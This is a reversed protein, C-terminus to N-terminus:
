LVGSQRYLFRAKLHWYYLISSEKTWCVNDNKVFQRSNQVHFGLIIYEFVKFMNWIYFCSNHNRLTDGIDMHRGYDNYKIVSFLLPLYRYRAQPSRHLNASLNWLWSWLFIQTNSLREQVSTESRHAQVIWNTYALHNLCLFFLCPKRKQSIESIYNKRHKLLFSLNQKNKRKTLKLECGQPLPSLLICCFM